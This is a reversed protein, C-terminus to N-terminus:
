LNFQNEKLFLNNLKLFWILKKIIAIFNKIFTYKIIFDLFADKAPSSGAAEQNTTLREVM